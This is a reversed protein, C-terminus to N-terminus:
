AFGGFIEARMDSSCQGTILHESRFIVNGECEEMSEDMHSGETWVLIRLFM